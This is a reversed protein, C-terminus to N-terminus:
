VEIIWLIALLGFQVPLTWSAADFAILLISPLAVLLASVLLPEWRAPAAGSWSSYKELAALCTLALVGYALLVQGLLLPDPSGAPSGTPSGLLGLGFLALFTPVALLTLAALVVLAPALRGLTRDSARLPAAVGMTSPGLLAAGARCMVFAALLVGIAGLFTGGVSGAGAMADVSPDVAPQASGFLSVGAVVQAAAFLALVAGFALVATSLQSWRPRRHLLTASRWAVARWPASDLPPPALSRRPRTVGPRDHLADLLRRREGADAQRAAVAGGMGALGALLQFTRMAQLQTLVLSQAAFRPPWSDRLSRRVALHSTAALLLPLLLVYPAPSAMAALPSYVPVGPGAGGGWLALAAPVGATLTAVGIIAAAALRAEAGSDDARWRGVYRLWALDALVVALLAAVPAAWPASLHFYPPALLSWLGGLFAGGLAMLTRRLNLRYRLAQWPVVPALGLRFLDRRDLVVPPTRGRFARLLFLAAVLLAAYTPVAHSFPQDRRQIAEAGSLAFIVLWFILYLVSWWGVAKGVWVRYTHLARWVTRRRLYAVAANM